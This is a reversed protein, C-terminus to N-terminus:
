TSSLALFLNSEGLRPSASSESLQFVMALALQGLAM